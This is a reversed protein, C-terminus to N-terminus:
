SRDECNDVQPRQEVGRDVRWELTLEPDFLSQGLVNMRKVCPADGIGKVGMNKNPQDLGKRKKKWNVTTHHISFSDRFVVM